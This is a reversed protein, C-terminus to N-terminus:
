EDLQELLGLGIQLFSPADVEPAINAGEIVRVEIRQALPFNKEECKLM